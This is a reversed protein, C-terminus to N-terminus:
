PDGASANLEMHKSATNHIDPVDINKLCAQLNDYITEVQKMNTALMLSDRATGEIDELEKLVRGIADERMLADRFIAARSNIARTVANPVTAVGGGRHTGRRTSEIEDVSMDTVEAEAKYGTLRREDSLLEIERNIEKIRDLFRLVGLDIAAQVDAQKNIREDISMDRARVESRKAQVLENFRARWQDRDTVRIAM